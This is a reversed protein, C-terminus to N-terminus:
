LLLNILLFLRKVVIVCVGDGSSNVLHHFLCRSRDHPLWGHLWHMIADRCDLSGLSIELWILPLRLAGQKHFSHYRHVAKEDM